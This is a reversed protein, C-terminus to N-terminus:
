ELKNWITVYVFKMTLIMLLLVYGELQSEVYNSIYIWRFKLNLIKTLEFQLEYGIGIGIQVLLLLIVTYYTIKLLKKEWQELKYEIKM